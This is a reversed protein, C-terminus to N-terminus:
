WTPVCLQLKKWLLNEQRGFVQVVDQELVSEDLKEIFPKRGAAKIRM